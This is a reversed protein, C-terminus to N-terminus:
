GSRKEKAKYASRIEHAVADPIHYSHVDTPFSGSSVEEHFEKVALRVLDAGDLYAKVFKPRRGQSLGLVDHLVLVQGDCQAGAGIGITAVTLRETIMAAVRDPVCELVVACCGAQELAEAQQIIACATETERGQVRFETATQPTLGVHGIVAIGAATLQEVVALCGDFWEVKVGQAGSKILGRADKVPRSDTQQYSSFPMDAIVPTNKAGRCVAATHYVMERIMVDRTSELGLVVNALSDGVLIIDVGAEDALRAFPYDYATIMSIKPPAPRKTLIDKLLKENM